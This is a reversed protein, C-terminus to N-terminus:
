CRVSSFRGQGPVCRESCARRASGTPPEIGGLEVPCRWSWERWSHGDVLHKTFTQLAASEGDMVDHMSVLPNASMICPPGCGGDM